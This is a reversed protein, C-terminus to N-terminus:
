EWLLVSPLPGNSPQAFRLCSYGIGALGNFFGPQPLDRPLGHLLHYGGMASPMAQEILASTLSLAANTYDSNGLMRGATFLIDARGFHGCCLHDRQEEALEHAAKVTTKLGNTIDDQVAENDLVSLGGLRALAIGPAGHCWSTMFGEDFRLDPWNGAGTNYIGQEYEIGVQAATLLAEDGTVQYLKLLAYAIGAAGHSFGAILKGDITPWARGGTEVEVQKELLHEGCAVAIALIEDFRTAQYLPLLGLIAGAAGGIVDMQEDKEILEPTILKALIVADSLLDAQDEQDGNDLFGACRTLSYILSGLGAAGGIGMKIFTDWYGYKIRQRLGDLAGLAYQRYVDQRTIRWMAALFLAVGSSGSYLDNELYRVYYSESVPDISVDTFTAARGDFLAMDILQEGIAQAESLFLEPSNPRSLSKSKKHRELLRSSVDPKEYSLKKAHLAQRIFRSQRQLDTPSLAELTDVLRQYGSILFCKPIVEGGPTTLDRSDTTIDFLPVDNRTLAAVEEHFLKWYRQVGLEEKIYARGLHELQIHRDIGDRMCKAELSSLWVKFYIQTARFVFRTPLRQFRSIPGSPEILASRNELLFHYTEEFGAMIQKHYNQPLQLEGEFIVGFTNSLPDLDLTEDAWHM